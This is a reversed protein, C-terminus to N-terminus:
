MIVVLFSGKPSMAGEGFTFVTRVDLGLSIQKNQFTTYIPSNMIYEKMDSKMEEDNKKLQNM